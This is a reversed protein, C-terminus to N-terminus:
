TKTNLIREPPGYQLDSEARQGFLVYLLASENVPNNQLLGKIWMSIKFAMNKRILPYETAVM